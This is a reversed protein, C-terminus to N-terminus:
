KEKQWTSEENFLSLSSKPKFDETSPSKLIYINVKVDQNVLESYILGEIIEWKGKAQGAGILPMYVNAKLKLAKERLDALCQQLSTYELPIKGNRTFLGNQALMQFVYTDDSVKILQSNGLRFEIKREKWKKLAEKIVPYNKSLAKGFGFGLGGSTNVLQAIIKIGGGRPKTADGFEINIKRDQLKEKGYHPVLIVGIRAKNEKRMPSIGIYFANYSEGLFEWSVTERETWGPATCYYARSGTPIQFNDPISPKFRTSSKHYDLVLQKENQFTFVMIACPRDIAMVFAIFISELSSKYKQALAILGEVTIDRLQNADSPFIVYPLQLESAGLNCLQELERNKDPEEERNRIAEDCDSFLTHAIEHAVSFNMRTPKQFPNYEILFKKKGVPITRADLVTDNPSIDFNLIKALEIANFPPGNWGNELAYLVIKRARNKIEEIPDECEAEAMLNLVSKHRWKRKTYTVQPENLIFSTHQLNHKSNNLKSSAELNLKDVLELHREIFEDNAEDIGADSRLNAEILFELAFRYNSFNVKETSM